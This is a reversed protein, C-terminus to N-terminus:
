YTEYWHAAGVQDGTVLRSGSSSWELLSICVSHTSSLPTQDGSPHTLLLVDGNEWGLALVPKTPHWRLVAPQHPRELHCSEVHEGQVNVLTISILTNRRGGDDAHTAGTNVQQLYIDVNGGGTRSTSAVALLPLAPHWTLHSPADSSDPAEIRHDFYVAMGRGQVLLLCWHMFLLFGTRLATIYAPM